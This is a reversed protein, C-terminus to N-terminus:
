ILVYNIRIKQMCHSPNHNEWVLILKGKSKRKKVRFDQNVQVKGKFIKKSKTKKKLRLSAITNIHLSFKIEHLFMIPNLSQFIIFISFIPSLIKPWNPQIISLILNKTKKHSKHRLHTTKHFFQSSDVTISVECPLHQTPLSNTKLNIFIM